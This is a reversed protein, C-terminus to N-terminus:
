APKKAPWVFPAAKRTWANAPYRKRMLAGVQRAIDGTKDTEASTSDHDYRDYGRGSYRIERLVLYLAEPIDPDTTHTNAYDIVQSGLCIDSSGLALLTKSEQQAAQLMDPTLFAVSPTPIPAGSETFSTSWDASWWNDSYSEVFDYSASRQVGSDLYPRLGPNRLLTMLPHFGIGPGAQQQLKQPLLPLLQNAIPENKLLVARVWAMIAVSQRLPQPLTNSQAIKALTALPTQKNFLFVSDDSFEVPSNQPKCDYVRKPNKMVWLCEASASSEESLRALIKRPADALAEDLTPASQMRLGTFLNIASDSNLAQIAPLSAAILTRAEAARGLGLLLRIRHYTVTPWVPSTAPLKEAADLLAPTEADAPSAKLIAATLWPTSPTRKFEALAHAKASAAPSQFTILWDIVPSASRLDAVTVFDKDAGTQRQANTLSSYAFADERISLSDLKANLYWTLDTLDQDYNPDTRPGALAAALEAIRKNPETRLRVLNLLKVVDQTSIGPLNKHRISELQQHAQKMLDANFSATADDQISKSSLYADRILVRAAVYAAIGRWPSASDSAISQFATRADTFKGSYFLAATQQYARDQQLLLPADAPAPSPMYPHIESKPWPSYAPPTVPGCNSFVADQGKIWDALAPSQAGWAKARSELTTIATRFAGEQCNEYYDSLIKGASYVTSYKTVAHVEPQPPAYRNRAKLWLDAPGPPEPAPKSNAYDYNMASVATDEPYLEAYSLLPKYAKQEQLTLTGGNLYRYAVALDARPYTPLLIGLKGAAYDAPHDAHFTRVFVDPFFEPGCAQATYFPMLILVAIPALAFLRKM